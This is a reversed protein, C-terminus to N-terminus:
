RTRGKDEGHRFRIDSEREKEDEVEEHALDGVMLEKKEQCLSTMRSLLLLLVLMKTRVVGEDGSQCVGERATSGSRWNKWFKTSIATRLFRMRAAETSVGKTAAMGMGPAFLRSMWVLVTVSISHIVTSSVVVTQTSGDSGVGAGTTAAAAVVVSATGATVM